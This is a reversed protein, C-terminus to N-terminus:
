SKISYPVSSSFILLVIRHIILNISSFGSKIERQFPDLTIRKLLNKDSEIAILRFWALNKIRLPRTETSLRKTM